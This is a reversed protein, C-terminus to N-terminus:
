PSRIRRQRLGAKRIRHLSIHHRPDGNEIIGPQGAAGHSNAAGGVIRDTRSGGNPSKGDLVVLSRQFASLRGSTRTENARHVGAQPHKGTGPRCVVFPFPPDFAEARYGLIGFRAPDCQGKFREITELAKKDGVGGVPATRGLLLDGLIDPWARSMGSACRLFSGAAANREM